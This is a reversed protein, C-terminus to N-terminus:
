RYNVGEQPQCIRHSSATTFACHGVGDNGVAVVGWQIPLQYGDKRDEELSHCAASIAMSNTCAMAMTGDYQRCGLLVLAAAETFGVIIAVIIAGPSYAGTSFSNEADEQGDPALATVRGLFFSQSILWHMLMSGASLPIGYRFPITIFYSSRQIGIPESVRLPKRKKELYMLSFERQILFTSLVANYVVYILSLFVQPLNILLVSFLLGAPDERPVAITLYTNPTLSGFGLSFLAPFSTPIARHKLSRISSALALCAITLLPLTLFLLSLWQKRSVASKWRKPTRRWPRPQYITKWQSEDLANFDNKTALCANETALDPNRMFSAIADGLTSIVANKLAQEDVAGKERRRIVWVCCITLATLFNFVCVTYLIYSSYQFRCRSTTTDPPQLLCHSVEYRPPGLHWNVVPKKPSKAVFRGTGNSAAWMNKAWDDWRPVVDVYLLLSGDEPSASANKVFIAGNSQPLWYDDYADFCESVNKTKYLGFMTDRQINAIINHYDARTNVRTDNWSWDGQRNREAVSLNWSAGSVFEDKVVVITYDNSALSKFVASNYALHIPLACLALLVWCLRKWYGIHRFNRLSPVGIDLWKRKRHAADIDARTPAAQLQICYNSASLMLTSLVNILLHIWQDLRQVTDCDGLYILGVGHVTPYRSTAYITLGVNAALVVCIVAIQLLLAKERKSFRIRWSNEENDNINPFWGLLVQREAFDEVRFPTSGPTEGTDVLSLQDSESGFLERLHLSSLSATSDPM